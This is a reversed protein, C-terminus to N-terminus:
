PRWRWPRGSTAPHCRGHAWMPSRGAKPGPGTGAWQTRAAGTALSSRVAGGITRRGGGGRTSEAVDGGECDPEHMSDRRLVGSEGILSRVDGDEATGGANPRVFVLPGDGDVEDMAVNEVGSRTM